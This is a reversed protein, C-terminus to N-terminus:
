DQNVLQEPQDPADRFASQWKLVICYFPLKRKGTENEDNLKGSVMHGEGMGRGVDEKLGSRSAAITPGTRGPICKAVQACYPLDAKAKKGTKNEDRHKRTAKYGKGM